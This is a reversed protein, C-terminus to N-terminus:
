NITTPDIVVALSSTDGAVSILIWRSGTYRLTASCFLTSGNKFWLLPATATPLTVFYDHAHAFAYITFDVNGAPSGTLAVLVNGSPNGINFTDGQSPDLTGSVALGPNESRGSRYAGNGLYETTGSIAASATGDITFQASNGVSLVSGSGTASMSAGNRAVISSGAGAGTGDAIIHGVGSPAANHGVFLTAGNAIYTPTTIIVNGGDFAWGGSSSCVGTFTWQNSTAIPTVYGPGTYNGGLVPDISHWALFQCNDMCAMGLAMLHASDDLDGDDSAAGSIFRGFGFPQSSPTFVQYGFYPTAM